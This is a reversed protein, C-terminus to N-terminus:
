FGHLPAPIMLIFGTDTKVAEMMSLITGKTVSSFLHEMFQLYQPLIGPFLPSAGSRPATTHWCPLGAFLHYHVQAEFAGSEAKQLNLVFPQQKV